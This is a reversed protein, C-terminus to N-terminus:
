AKRCGHPHGLSEDFQRFPPINFVYAKGRKSNEKRLKFYEEFQNDYLKAKARVKIHRKIPIKSLRILDIYGNEGTKPIVTKAFFVWNEM